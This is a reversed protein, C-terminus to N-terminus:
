LAYAILLDQTFRQSFSIFLRDGMGNWQAARNRDPSLNLSRSYRYYCLVIM